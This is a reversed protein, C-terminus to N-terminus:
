AGGGGLTVKCIQGLVKNPILDGWEGISCHYAVGRECIGLVAGARAVSVSESWLLFRRRKTVIDNMFENCSVEPLPVPNDRGYEFYAAANEFKRDSSWHTNRDMTVLSESRDHGTM